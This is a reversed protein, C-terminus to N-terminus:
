RWDYLSVVLDCSNHLVRLRGALDLVVDLVRLTCVVEALAGHWRRLPALEDDRGDITYVCTAVSAVALLVVIFAKCDEVDHVVRRCNM